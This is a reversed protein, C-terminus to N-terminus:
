KGKEKRRKVLVIGGGVVVASVAIAPVVYKHEAPVINPYALKGYAPTNKEDVHIVDFKGHYEGTNPARGSFFYYKYVNRNQISEDAWEQLRNEDIADRMEAYKQEMFVSGKYSYYESWRDVDAQNYRGNVITDLCPAQPWDDNVTCSAHANPVVFSTLIGLILFIMFRKM